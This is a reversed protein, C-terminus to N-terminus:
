RAVPCTGPAPVQQGPPLTFDLRESGEVMYPGTGVFFRGYDEDHGTAIGLPAAPDVPSPPIPATDSMAFRAPLDGAPRMLRIRLTYPDPTEVGSVTSADGALFEPVGVIGLQTLTAFGSAQAHSPLVRHLM